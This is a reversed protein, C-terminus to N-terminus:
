ETKRKKSYIINKALAIEIKLVLCNIDNKQRIFLIVLFSSLAMLLTLCPMRGPLDLDIM